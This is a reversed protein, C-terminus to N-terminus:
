RQLADCERLVNALYKVVEPQLTVHHRAAFCAMVAVSAAVVLSPREIQLAARMVLRRNEDSLADVMGVMTGAFNRDDAKPLKAFHADAVRKVDDLSLRKASSSLRLSLLHNLIGSDLCCTSCCDSAHASCTVRRVDGGVSAGEAWHIRVGLRHLNCPKIALLMEEEAAVKMPYRGHDNLKGQIVAVHGNLESKSVLSHLIVEEGVSCSDDTESRSDEASPASSRAAQAQAAGPRVAAQSTCEAKHLVWDAKQCGSSCYRRRRCRSCLLFKGKSEDAELNVCVDAGCRRLVAGSRTGDVLPAQPPRDLAASGFREGWDVHPEVYELAARISGHFLILPWYFNPDQALFLPHALVDGEQSAVLLALTTEVEGRGYDKFTETEVRGQIGRFIALHGRGALDENLSLAAGGTAVASLRNVAALLCERCSARGHQRHVCTVELDTRLSRQVWASVAADDFFEYCAADPPVVFLQADLARSAQGLSLATAQAAIGRRGYQFSVRSGRRALKKVQREIEQLVKRGIMPPAASGPQPRSGVQQSPAIAAFPPLQYGLHILDRQLALILSCLNPGGSVFGQGPQLQSQVNDLMQSTAMMENVLVSKTDIIASAGVSQALCARWYWERCMRMSKRVGCGQEYNDALSQMAIAIGGEAAQSLYRFSLENTELVGLPEAGAADFSIGELKSELTQNRRQQAAFFSPAFQVSGLLRRKFHIGAQYACALNGADACRVYESLEPRKPGWTTGAGMQANIRQIEASEAALAHPNASEAALADRAQEAMAVRQSPIGPCVHSGNALALQRCATSCFVVRTCECPVHSKSSTACRCGACTAAAAAM